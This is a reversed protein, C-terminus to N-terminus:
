VMDRLKAGRGELDQHHKECLIEINTYHDNKKNHDKHHVELPTELATKHCENCEAKHIALYKLLETQSFEDKGM